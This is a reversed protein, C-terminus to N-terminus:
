EVAISARSRAVVPLNADDQATGKVTYSVEGTLESDASVNVQFRAQDQDASVTVPDAALVSAYEPPVVLELGVPAHLKRARLIEVPLEFSTGRRVAIDPAEQTIKLLAGEISMVINGEMANVLHRVNGKPDPVLAVGILSMRQTLNTGLWEPMYCPFFARTNGPPVVLEQPGSIGQRHRSQNAAMMLRIEGEFGELRDIIVEGPHATGRHVTRGGDKDVPQLKCRPKMTMALLMSRTLRTGSTQATGSVEVMKAVVASDGSSTLATKLESADAPIVLNDPVTVGDPLGTLKVEIPEAFGERRVASVKLEATAGLGVNLSQPVTLKFGAPDPLALTLHFWALPTGAAGSIHDSVVLTYEGDAPVIFQLEADTSGGADENNALQKGDPGLVSLAVDLPSGIQQSRVGVNWINGQKGLFRFHQEASEGLWSTIGIPPSFQDSNIDNESSRVAVPVESIPISVPSAVGYPTELRYEHTRLTPDDPFSVDRRVSELRPEGSALGLGLFRVSLTEGRPSVAPVTAIVRPGQSFRLRYVFSGNGSFDLDRVSVIYQEGADAPFTLVPDIGETDVVDAVMNGAADRAELVGHISTGLRHAFLECNILGHEQVVLRYQDIEEIRSLRGSVTVPFGSLLQPEAGRLENEVVESENSIVFQGTGSAGNASALQWQITQAPLGVPVTIRVPIERAMPPDGINCKDGKWYPPPTILIDGPPGLIELKIRPDHVFFQMDPTFNYGGVRVDITTGAQGGSPFVYGIQPAVQAVGSGTIGSFVIAAMLLCRIKPRNM